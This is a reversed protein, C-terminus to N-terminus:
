CLHEVRRLAICFICIKLNEKNYNSVVYWGHMSVEPGGRNRHQMM